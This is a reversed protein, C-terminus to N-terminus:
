LPGGHEQKSSNPQTSDFGVFCASWSVLLKQLLVPLRPRNPNYCCLLSCPVPFLSRAPPSHLIVGFLTPACPM